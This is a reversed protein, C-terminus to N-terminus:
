KQKSHPFYKELFIICTSIAFQNPIHLIHEPFYWSLQTAVILLILQHMCRWTAVLSLSKEWTWVKAILKMLDKELIVEMKTQNKASFKIKAEMDRWKKSTWFTYKNPPSKVFNYKFHLKSLNLYSCPHINASSSYYYFLQM